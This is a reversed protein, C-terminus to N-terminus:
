PESAFHETSEALMADRPATRLGKGVRDIVRFGVVEWAANAVAIMPRVLVATAYGALILPKRWGKRDSVRGSVWKLLASTLEAAGDLAGLVTAGAGLTVTVFAPLLPYVMESAVDNFFSVAALGKVTAPLKEESM